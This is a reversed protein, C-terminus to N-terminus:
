PVHGTVALEYLKRAAAHDDVRGPQTLCLQPFSAVGQASDEVIDLVQRQSAPEAVARVEGLRSARDLSRQDVAGEVAPTELAIALELALQVCHRRSGIRADADFM